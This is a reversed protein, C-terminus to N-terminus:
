AAANAAARLPRLAASWAVVEDLLADIEDERGAPPAFRDFGEFDEFFRLCVHARVDAVKLEGLIGRLHEVAPQGGEVGYSVCGAAKDNWEAHLFDLADKLAGPISHNYEPTVFVFGDFAAVTAAWRLTHPRTPAGALPPLLENFHPLGHDAIDVVAFAADTRRAAIKHVWEAVALIHRGPRTSGTVIAIRPITGSAPASM